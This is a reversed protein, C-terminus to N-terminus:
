GGSVVGELVDELAAAMHTALFRQRVTARARAGLKKRASGDALLDSLRCALRATDNPDVLYGSIGDEIIEPIGGHRGGVLPKGRAGAELLSIGLGEVRKGDHLSPMVFVDCADLLHIKDEEAVEGTFVVAHGVGRQAALARLREVDDGVGAVVYHADPVRRLVEPLAEIVAWQGKRPVLRALTLMSPGDVIGWAEQLAAIRKPVRPADLLAGDIGNHIVSLGEPDFGARDMLGRVFGSVCVVAAARRYSHGLPLAQLREKLTGPPFHKTIESGHVVTVFPVSKARAVVGGIGHALDSTLLLVDPRRRRLVRELERTGPLFRLLESGGHVTGMRVTRFPLTTDLEEATPYDPALVEVEHGLRTLELAVRHTYGAVGGSFPVFEFTFILVRMM